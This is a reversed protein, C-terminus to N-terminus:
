TETSMPGSSPASVILISDTAMEAAALTWLGSAAVALWGPRPFQGARVRADDDKLTQRDLDAGGPNLWVHRLARVAGREALVGTRTLVASGVAPSLNEARRHACNMAGSAQGTAHLLPRQDDSGPIRVFPRYHLLLVGKGNRVLFGTRSRASRRLRLICRCLRRGNTPPCSCSTPEQQAPRVFPTLFILIAACWIPCSGTRPRLRRWGAMVKCMARQRRDQRLISSKM